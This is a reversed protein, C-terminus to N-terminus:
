FYYIEKESGTKNQHHYNKFPSFVNKNDTKLTKILINENQLIRYLSAIHKNM